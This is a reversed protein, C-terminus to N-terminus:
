RLQPLQQQLLDLSFAVQEPQTLGTLSWLATGTSAPMANLTKGYVTTNGYNWGGGPLQRDLLLSVGSRVREHNSKGVLTLARIAMATPEVWSHTQDIWSWGPISSDHGTPSDPKKVIQRGSTALLFDIAKDHAASFRLDGHLAMAAAATPWFAEPYDPALPISGNPLQATALKERAGAVIEPHTRFSELCLTAWATADPRSDGGPIEAFGGDPMRRSLLTDIAGAISASSPASPHRDM